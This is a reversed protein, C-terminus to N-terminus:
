IKAFTERLKEIEENRLESILLKTKVLFNEAKAFMDQASEKTLVFNEKSTVYYQKDIREKKAFSIIKFLDHRRFLLKFMLISGSHNECKIGTKFLLASLANYMAYYSNSVSNEYLKHQLLIKASLLCNESKELYSACVENSPEALALKGEKSLKILFNQRKM